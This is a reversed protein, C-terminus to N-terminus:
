TSSEKAQGRGARAFTTMSYQDGFMALLKWTPWEREVIITSIKYLAQPYCITDIFWRPSQSM